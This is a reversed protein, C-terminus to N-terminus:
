IDFTLIEVVNITLMASNTTLKVRDESGARGIARVGPAGAFGSTPREKEDVAERSAFGCIRVGNDFQLHQRRGVSKSRRYLRVLRRVFLCVRRWIGRSRRGPRDPEVSRTQGADGESLLHKTAADRVRHGLAAPRDSFPGSSNTTLTTAKTTLLARYARYGSCGTSRGLM